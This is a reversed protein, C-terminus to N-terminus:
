RGRRGFTNPDPDLAGASEGGLGARATEWVESRRATPSSWWAGCSPLKEGHEALETAVACRKGQKVRAVIQDFLARGPPERWWQLPEILVEVTGNCGLGLGWVKENESSTDYTM